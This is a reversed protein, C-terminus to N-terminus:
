VKEVITNFCKHLFNVIKQAKEKSINIHTPLNVIKKAVSEAIPCDGAEYGMKAQNTDPPMIAANRWGDDLFIKEKRAKDLIMDANTDKLLVPYRLYIRGEASPPLVLKFGALNKDYLEAIQRQHSIFKELKEFQNLALIALAEPMKKAPNVPLKGQKERKSVAKSLLGIKQLFILAWKGIEGFSYLPIILFTTLIPHLLQQFTWLCSPEPLNNQYDKLKQALQDDDTAAMGGAVSSIVKDRGFSFFAAKGFTGVKALAETPLGAKKGNYAAGLSHACDEILILNRQQCISQIKELNAPLGFTHQVLVAKSKPSIKNELDEVDINLTTKDIDVFVPKLGAALIPNVVANCTFGQILVESGPEFNLCKLIALFATRGSNFAFAHKIGLYHEFKQELVLSPNEAIAQKKDNTWKWPQFILKLALIIDDKQTNPSLSTFIPKNYQCFNNKM